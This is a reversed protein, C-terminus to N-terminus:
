NVSLSFYMFYEYMVVFDHSFRTHYTQVILDNGAEDWIVSSNVIQLLTQRIFQIHRFLTCPSVSM